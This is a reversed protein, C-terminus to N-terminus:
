VATPRPRCASPNNLFRLCLPPSRKGEAKSRVRYLNIPKKSIRRPRAPPHCTARVPRVLIGKAKNTWNSDDRHVSLWIGVGPIRGEYRKAEYEPIGMGVLAATIGGIAGGVGSEPSRQGSPDLPSCHDSAPFRWRGASSRAPQRGLPLEKPLKPIKKQRLTRLVRTRLFYFRFTAHQSIGRRATRRACIGCRSANRLNWVRGYKQGGYSRWIFKLIIETVVESRPHRKVRGPQWPNPSDTAPANM